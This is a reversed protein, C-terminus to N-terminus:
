SNLWKELITRKRTSASAMVTQATSIQTEYEEIESVIRQQETLPPVPIYFNEIDTKNISPYQGKPMAKQMQNMLDPLYMFCYYVFKSMIQNENKSRLIAFGTSYVANPLAHDIYTFGKLNPRVTSILISKDCALRRARSPANVGMIKQEMSFKGTGNEVSDIDIYVFEKDPTKRPDSSIDNIM